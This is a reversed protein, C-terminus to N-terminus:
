KEIVEFKATVLDVSNGGVMVTFSGPEVVSKMERNYFSLKEPTIKFTVKKTEGPALSIRTFDRLEKIPRTVSSVDDRLYMQAVEDGRVKGTNTVNVSVTTEGNPAIKENEVKLDSYKFTTYSLGYGFPFVPATTTYLYGRKASPKQNYYDPMQGVSRPFTVPLKGGPNYDGFIVDAAANGTEEGLYFGELIAPVNEAVYGIALPGSNTLFVVTPKGTALIAKVLENQRGVLELSDRDGFHNDAWAEKNTDENGGISLIVADSNQATKVAEAILKRDSEEDNLTSTDGFWNGGEKTIKVGEAYNVKVSNGLKNKIGELIGVSKPPKPDTYGGLHAKEANPGIVAVSKLKTKDLPLVNNQNKLLVISRRAADLALARHEASDVIKEAKNPDVYPNEFLGLQFKSRLVNAVARNVLEESLKGSKVQEVITLYNDPDPLEMDVGAELSQRTADAKDFAVRHRSALEGIAYYDSVVVGQFGFDKRLIDQLFYKNAHAPIGDLEHYAPMISQLGGEKIAAEFTKLHTERLLRESLNVPAINTGGEPQGHGIFHKGTAIVHNEGIKPNQNNAGGQLAKVVAVGFRSALYPDEGYTEETRGWRPDRAIDLNPGLVHQSGRVRTELAGATFVRSILDTDWSAAMSLPTPFVTSGRAMNGHLIEDHFVAPIGLRTNEILWKQFTNAFEASGRPTKDESQRAIQGIGYPILKKAKEPSFDGRDTRPTADKTDIKQPKENWLCILQAAKEELTMRSLLDKVREDISLQPNKYPFVTQANSKGSDLVLANFVFFAILLFSLKRRFKSDFDKIKM